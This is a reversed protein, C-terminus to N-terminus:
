KYTITTIVSDGPLEINNIVGKLMVELNEPKKPTVRHFYFNSGTFEVPADWIISGAERVYLNHVHVNKTAVHTHIYGTFPHVSYNPIYATPDFTGDTGYLWLAKLIADSCDQDILQKRLNSLYSMIGAAVVVPLAGFNAGVPVTVMPVTVPGNFLSFKYDNVTKGSSNNLGSGTVVYDAMLYMKHIMALVGVTLITPFTAAYFPLGVLPDDLHKFLSVRGAETNPDWYKVLITTLVWSFNGAEDYSQVEIKFPILKYKGDMELKIKGKSEKELTEKLTKELDTIKM